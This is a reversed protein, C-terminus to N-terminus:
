SGSVKFMGDQSGTAMSLTWDDGKKRGHVKEQLTELWGRITPLGPTPGYQLAFELDPGDITVAEPM